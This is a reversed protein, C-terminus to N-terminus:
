AAGLLKRAAAPLPKDEKRRRILRHLQPATLAQGDANFAIGAQVTSVPADGAALRDVLNRRCAHFLPCQYCLRVANQLQEITAQDLDWEQGRGQCTATTSTAM